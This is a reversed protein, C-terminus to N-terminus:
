GNQIRRDMRRITAKHQDNEVKLARVQANLYKMRASVYDLYDNMQAFDSETKQPEDMLKKPATPKKTAMM